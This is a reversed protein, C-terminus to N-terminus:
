IDYIYNFGIRITYTQYECTHCYINLIDNSLDDIYVNNIKYGYKFYDRYLVKMYFQM